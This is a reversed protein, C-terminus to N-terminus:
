VQEKHQELTLDVPKLQPGNYPRGHIADMVIASAIKDWIVAADKGTARELTGDDWEVEVRVAKKESM